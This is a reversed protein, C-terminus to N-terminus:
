RQRAAFAQDLSDLLREYFGGPRKDVIPIQVDHFWQFTDRTEGDVSAGEIIVVPKEKELVEILEKIWIGKAVPHIILADISKLCMYEILPTNDGFEGGPLNEMSKVTIKELRCRNHWVPSSTIGYGEIFLVSKGELRPHLKVVRRTEVEEQPM